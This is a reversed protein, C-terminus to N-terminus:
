VKKEGLDTALQKLDLKKLGPMLVLYQRRGKDDQMFLNKIETRGPLEAMAEEITFVAKHEVLEYEIGLKSLFTITDEM